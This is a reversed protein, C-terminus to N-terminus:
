MWWKNLKIIIDIKKSPPENGHGFIETLDFIYHNRDLYHNSYKHGDKKIMKIFILWCKFQNYKYNIKKIAKNFILNVMYKKGLAIKQMLIM